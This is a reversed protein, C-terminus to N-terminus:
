EYRLAVMPDVKTARRAPVFCAGLAVVAVVLSIAAFTVPDTAGIGFLLSSMVRTLALSAALGVAIGGLTLRIGQGVVLKIVDNSQAGLAMRIGLEQTRQTVSYSMVSYIGLAALTAALMAMLSLLIVIFRRQAVSGSVLQEMTAVRYIPLDKDVAWIEGRVAELLVRPDVPTRVVLQMDSSTWQAEPVYAQLDAPTDLGYHSVNGTIGVITRLPGDPGGMRVRKGIPDENPWISQATSDSILAVFPANPGDRETFDRGALLPIRMARLYEPSIVYREISPAEEPNVMPKEEVHFGYMDKNGGLPLNSVVAAAEVGLLHSVRSVVEDYFACVKADDAYRTGNASVNMTVLNASEFGPTVNLVRVFSRVLLGAGVLLVLALAIESVVLLNRLRHGAGGGAGRAGEKLAANLDLKSSQLAPALGFIIGTLLSLALTFGLVRADVNVENLRLITPPSLAALIEIGWWVLALGAAAGLTSLMVSETLLQRIIRGRRAGLASRIAIEKRRQTSRALLLNAVNACAILLVLAVAGLLLYLAPRVAGVFKDLLPIITVGSVAYDHPHELVLTQSITNLEAGAQELSVGQKLRAIAQIHRCTRCAWPLTEDYGLPAWLDAKQFLRASVLDEFGKPMVGTVTFTQGGLTIPKGVIAADSGFRRQWLSHSLIVVRRTAPSDEQPLFERGFVPKIALTSFYNASVRMGQLMEPEGEGTLTISWDRVVSISEFSQSRERWDKSTAYSTNSSKGDKGNEEIMVIRQPEPYPLPRLLVSNILSFIATNAGIGLALAAVAVVTFGPRTRLMRFGYRIDQFLEKM